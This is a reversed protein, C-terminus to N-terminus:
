MFLVAVLLLGGLLISMRILHKGKLALVLAMTVLALLAGRSQTGLVAMGCTLMIGILGWRILRKSATQYLFWMLPILMVLALGLENNGQIVGGSPGWVRSGGGTLVTWIGGKVGYFGISLVVVWILQEIQRRGRILMLTIFLMFHIKVVVVWQGWVLEPGNMAFFSTVTMWLVFLIQTLTISNIPFSKRERSFLFGILTAIAVMQAFPLTRAFGWAARHPIMMSIWAWVYAGLRSNRLIFPLLGLIVATIVIDRM